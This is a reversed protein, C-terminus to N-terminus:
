ELGAFAQNLTAPVIASALTNADTMLNNVQDLKKLGKVIRRQESMPPVWLEHALLAEVQVRQRRVGLGKSLDSLVRWQRPSRLAAAIFEAKALDPDVDFSPFENSVYYGDFEDPVCAYAGEFAFLRSYIFQGSRVRNLKKASTELGSIPPKDFVGRGFSYIGLNPYQADVKVEITESSQTMVEYLPLYRWGADSREHETLQPQGALSAHLAGTRIRASQRRHEISLSASVVRDLHAAIQLQEQIDPLPIEIAEFRDVALTRNRGASGPSAIGLLEVGKESIFFYRLYSTCVEADRPRYTMFRHSGIRNSDADGALAVAGEWAFVNSLVLDGPHIEFVRKKGLDIGLVPDKHFIGRGFSRVGIEAYTAVPDVEIQRRHLELVDGVKVRKM